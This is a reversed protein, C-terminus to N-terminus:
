HTSLLATPNGRVALKVVLLVYNGVNYNREAASLEKSFFAIPHLKLKERSHQSLAAEVGTSSTDVEVIFQADPYPHKLIPATTFAEKPKQYARKVDGTWLLRKKGGKTLSTLPAAIPSYNRIFQLYFNRLPRHTPGNYSMKSRTRM